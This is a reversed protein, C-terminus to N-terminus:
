RHSGGGGNSNTGAPPPTGRGRGHSADTQQPTSGGRGGKGGDKEIQPAVHTGEDLRDVGMLVVVEGSKLGSTIETEEGETVGETIPRITVTNDPKVVYVFVKSTTRQITATPILVVGRKEQVLLRVNVFQNPFLRAGKNDFTARLRLTGTAPDIQNDVTSLMGAAIQSQAERDYAFARLRQHAALRNLVQQLQDESITFLASIPQVQTIVLLGNTDSAHVINGPDVLRLGIRGTIPATIRCYVLNLKAAGVAGIDTQVTGELQGVTAKQTTYVQEQVANQKLLTEYRTLDIRANNLLAQDRALTGEAQDLAVQFPRPDIEVLLQGTQVMDGERYYVKMLEGDVRTRVTVTFIPTVSGLGTFYVGINGTQARVAVVPISGGGRGGRGGSADDGKTSKQERGGRPQADIGRQWVLFAGALVLLCAVM